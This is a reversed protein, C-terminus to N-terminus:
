NVSRNDKVYVTCLLKVIYNTDLVYHNLKKKWIRSQKFSYINTLNTGCEKSIYICLISTYVRYIRNWFSILQKLDGDHAM